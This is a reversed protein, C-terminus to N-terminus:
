NIIKKNNEVDKFFLKASLYKYDANSETNYPTEIKVSIKGEPKSDLILPNATVIIDFQKWVDTSDKPFYYNRVHSGVKSLFFLTGQITSGAEYTSIVSVEVGSMDGEIMGQWDSFATSLENDTAPACAFLEYAYDDYIFREREKQTKFPFLVELDHTYPEFETLDFEHDYGRKYVNAFNNTFDRLVDNVDVAIKVM